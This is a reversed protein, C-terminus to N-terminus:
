RGFYQMRSLFTTASLRTLAVDCQIVGVTSRAQSLLRRPWHGHIEGSACGTAAPLRATLAAYDARARLGEARDVDNALPNDVLNGLERPEPAGSDPDDPAVDGDRGFAIQPSPRAYAPDRDLNM